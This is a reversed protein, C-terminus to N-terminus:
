KPWVEEEQIGERESETGYGTGKHNYWDSEDGSEERYKCGTLRRM